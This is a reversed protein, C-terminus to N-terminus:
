GDARRGVQRGAQRAQRGTQRDADSHYKKKVNAPTGHSPDSYERTVRTHLYICCTYLCLSLSGGAPPSLSAALAPLLPLPLLPVLLSPLQLLVLSLSFPAPLFVAPPLCLPPLTTIGGDPVAFPARQRM